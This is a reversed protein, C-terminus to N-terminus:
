RGGAVVPAVAPVDEAEAIIENGIMDAAVARGMSTGGIMMDEAIEGEDSTATRSSRVALWVVIAIFAVIGCIILIATM